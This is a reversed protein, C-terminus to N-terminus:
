MFELVRGIIKAERRLNRRIDDNNFGAAVYTLDCDVGLVALPINDSNPIPISIFSKMGKWVTTSDVNWFKHGNISLDVVQEINKTFTAGAGGREIPIELHEDVHGDMNFSAKIKLTNSEPNFTLISTRFTGTQTFLTHISYALIMKITDVKQSSLNPNPRLVIDNNNIQIFSSDFKITQKDTLEKVEPPNSLVDRKAKFLHQAPDKTQLDSSVESLADVLTFGANNQEKFLIEPKNYELQKENQINLDVQPNLINVNAGVGTKTKFDTPPSVIMMIPEDNVTVACVYNDGTKSTKIEFNKGKVDRRNFINWGMDNVRKTKM